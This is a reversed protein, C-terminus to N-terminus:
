SAAPFALKHKLLVQEEGRFPQAEESLSWWAGLSRCGPQAQGVPEHGNSPEPFHFPMKLQINKPETYFQLHNSLIKHVGGPNM